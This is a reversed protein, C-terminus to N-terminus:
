KDLLAILENASLGSVMIPYSVSGYNISQKPQKTVLRYTGYGFGQEFDM